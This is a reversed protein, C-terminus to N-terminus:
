WDMAKRQEGDGAATRKQFDLLEEERIPVSILGEELQRRYSRLLYQVELSLKSGEKLVLLGDKLGFSLVGSQFEELLMVLTDEVVLATDWGLGALIVDEKESLLYTDLSILLGEQERERLLVLLEEINVGPAAIIVDAGRSLQKEAVAAVQGPEMGALTEAFIQVTPELEYIGAEFSIQLNETGQTVILGVRGANSAAGAIIGALFAPEEERFTLSVVNPASLAGNVLVFKKEPYLPIIEALAQEMDEGLIWVLDNGRDAMERLSTSYEGPKATIVEIKGGLGAIGKQLGELVVAGAKTEESIPVVLGIRPPLRPGEEEATTDWVGCGVLSILFLLFLISYKELGKRGIV